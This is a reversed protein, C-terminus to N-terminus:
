MSHIGASNPPPDKENKFIIVTEWDSPNPMMFVFGDLEHLQM